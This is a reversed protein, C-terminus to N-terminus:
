KGFLIRIGRKRSLIIMCSEMIGLVLTMILSGVMGMKLLWDGAIKYDLLRIVEILLNNTLLIVISDKGFFSLGRLEQLGSKRYVTFLIIVAISILFADSFFLFPNKLELAGIGVFGNFEALVSGVVLLLWGHWANIKEIHNAVYYGIIMFLFAIICKIGLRLLWVDRMGYYSCLFIIAFGTVTCIRKKWRSLRIFFFVFLMEAFLYCPIFWLSDIGQGTLLAFLQKKITLSEGAIIHLLQYFLILISGWIYYPFILQRGRKKMYSVIDKKVLGRKERRSKLIGCVIFFIPMHFSFIWIKIIGEGPHCHSFLLLLIAFGKVYDLEVYRKEM